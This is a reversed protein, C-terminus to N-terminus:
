SLRPKKQAEKGTSGVDVVGRKKKGEEEAWRGLYIQIQTREFAAHEDDTMDGMDKESMEALNVSRKGGSTSVRSNTLHQMFGDDDVDGYREWSLSPMGAFTETTKEKSLLDERRLWDSLLTFQICAKQAIDFFKREKEPKRWRVGLLILGGNNVSKDNSSEAERRLLASITDVLPQYSSEHGYLLDSGCIIDFAGLSEQDHKGWELTQAKVKVNSGIMEKNTDINAELMEIASPCDTLVVEANDLTTALALGVSGLGSGVELARHKSGDSKNNCCVALLHESIATNTIINAMVLGTPWLESCIAAGATSDSAAFTLVKGISPHLSVHCTGDDDVDVSQENPISSKTAKKDSEGGEDDAAAAAADDSDAVQIQLADGPKAGAPLSIEIDQGGVEFCLSDGPEIGDPVVLTVTRPMTTDFYFLLNRQFSHQSADPDDEPDGQLPVLVSM